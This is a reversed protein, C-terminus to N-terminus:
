ALMIIASADFEGVAEENRAVSSEVDSESTRRKVPSGVLLAMDSARLVRM